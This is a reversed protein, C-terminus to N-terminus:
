RCEDTFDPVDECSRLDATVEIMQFARLKKGGEIRDPFRPDQRRSRHAM